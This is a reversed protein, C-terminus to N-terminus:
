YYHLFLLSLSAGILFLLIWKRSDRARRRAERLQVNGKEVTAATAIADEYLQETQETQKTLHTVLEAQLASIEMLRSEAQHVSALTDQVSQLINANETEFQMIQSATLELDEEDTEDMLDDTPMQIPKLTATSSLADNSQSGISAAFSSALNTAGGLWSGSSSSEAPSPVSDAMDMYMAERAAGSGLTRTRELQRKMREEQMEKLNQSAETLRRSLYWTVSAHHAAIFDSAATEDDQRLRAPLLRTLPNKRSAALEARRKEVAELERVRESCRSLIVRAQLDIQDREENSLHRINAWSQDASGLDITRSSQRSLPAHRSDLNLYPKRVAALMRNLTHIHNLIVYAEATYEKNLRDQGERQGDAARRPAIRRRKTEPLADQKERILDRLEPLRSTAPM